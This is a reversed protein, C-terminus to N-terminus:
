KVPCTGPGNCEIGGIGGQGRIQGLPKINKILERYEKAEIDEYPMQKFGSGCRKLFSTSKVKSAYNEKLWTKIEPLEYEDYVVTCSVANDAWHTQLWAQNELQEVATMEEELLTGKPIQVPFEVIMLSMDRTGDINLKPEVWYGANRCQEVLPDDTAMSLRRIHHEGKGPNGGPTCGALCSMTGSPKVTTLKISEDCGILKSYVKDTAEIHRYVEHFLKEKKHHLAQCFGTVGIGLRHNRDVVEQTDPDSHPVLSITKGVKVALEAATFFESQNVNILFIELLNCSETDELFIEACPNTGKVRPDKRYGKGDILRGFNRALELNCIGVAEGEGNYNSWFQESLRSIDPCAVTNNSMARWNPVHIKSWQKADLFDSSWCDGIAIEASRRINGAVVISGIINYIDLCAVDNLQRLHFGKLIKMIQGIGKVLIEPGSATGGFGKIPLGKARIAQTCYTFDKGTEFFSIFVKNLLEVWGERNDTVIFDCDWSDVRKITPTFKVPPLKYIYEAQVSFGVGGGLMLQNFAFLFSKLRHCTVFWCNQLSDAGIKTINPTGLQWIGRGATTMKLNFFYHYLLEAEEKSLAIDIDLLGHVMRSCTEWWEETRDGIDRAYTRKCTVYGIPGWPPQETVYQRVFSTDLKTAYKM